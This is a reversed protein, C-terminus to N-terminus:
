SPRTVRCPHRHVKLQNQSSDTHKEKWERIQDEILVVIDSMYDIFIEEMDCRTAILM